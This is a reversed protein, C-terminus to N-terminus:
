RSSLTDILVSLSLRHWGLSPWRFEVIHIPAEFLGVGRVEHTDVAHDRLRLPLAECNRGNVNNFRLVIKRVLFQIQNLPVHISWKMVPCVLSFPFALVFGKHDTSAM